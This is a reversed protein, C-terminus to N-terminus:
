LACINPIINLTRKLEEALATEIKFIDIFESPTIGKSINGYKESLWKFYRAVAPTDLSNIIYYDALIVLSESIDHTSDSMSINTNILKDTIQHTYEHLATFFANDIVDLSSPFPAMASFYEKSYIGRGNQTICYSLYLQLGKNFHNFLSNYKNFEVTLISEMYSRMEVFYKHKEQWYPFYFKSETDLVLIFPNIFQIRDEETFGNFGLLTQKFDNYDISYFPLFNIIMLRNFNKNYYEQLDKVESALNYAFSGKEAAMKDIYQECYCDSANAVKFHSLVHFFLDIHMTYKIELRM